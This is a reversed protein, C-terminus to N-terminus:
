RKITQECKSHLKNFYSEFNKISPKKGINCQYSITKESIGTQKSADSINIYTNILSDTDYDFEGIIEPAQVDEDDQYRFYYPKRTPRKYKAQRSITTKSLETERVAECISGYEAIKENTYTNYMVVPKSQSDDYDSPQDMLGDNVAKQTNQQYTTWYLNEVRNDSKINNKHGVIPLNLPNPIFAKAVLKHVRKTVPHECDSYKIGCQVYGHTNNICNTKKFVIGSNQGKYNTRVSYISGDIDVYDTLSGEILRATKPIEM